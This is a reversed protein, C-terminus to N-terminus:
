SAAESAIEAAPPRGMYRNRLVFYIAGLGALTALAGVLLGLLPISRLVVYVLVGVVLAVLDKRIGTEMQPAFQDVLLRGALFGVIAKTVFSVVIGFATVLLGLSAAGLGLIDGFLQGFTLLGGLGAILLIVIAVVPVGVAFVISVLCGWGTAPLPQEQIEAGPLRLSDPWFRLLLGGVILLSVFEGARELLTRGLRVAFSPRRQEVPTMPTEEVDVRGEIVADDDVRLGPGIAPVSGPFNPMFPPTTSDDPDGVSGVVDGGVNGSVELAGGGFNVDDAVQGGIIGQYGGIYVGRGVGSGNESEFSFGGFFANRGVSAEQGLTIAYGASYLSGDVDGNLRLTQGAIFASGEVSGNIVVEEGTAFLDGRIVGNMEIRNATVFLDDDIVEDAEIVVRDDAIFEAARAVGASGLGLTAVVAVVAIRLWRYRKTNSM